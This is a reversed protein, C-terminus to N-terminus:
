KDNIGMVKDVFPNIIRMSEEGLLRLLQFKLESVTVLKGASGFFRGAQTTVLDIQRERNSNLNAVEYVLRIPVGNHSWFGVQGIQTFIVPIDGHRRSSACRSSFPVVPYDLDAM